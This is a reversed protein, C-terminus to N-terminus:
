KAVTPEEKYIVVDGTENLNALVFQPRTPHFGVLSPPSTPLFVEEVVAGSNIDVGAIVSNSWNNSLLPNANAVFYYVDDQWPSWVIGQGRSFVPEYKSYTLSVSKPDNSGRLQSHAYLNVSGQFIKTQYRQVFSSSKPPSWDSRQYTAFHDGAPNWGSGCHHNLTSNWSTKKFKNIAGITFMPQGCNRRDYIVVTEGDCLSILNRDIPHISISSGVLAPTASIQWDPSGTKARSAFIQPRCSRRAEPLCLIKAVKRDRKDVNLVDGGECNLLWTTEDVAEM